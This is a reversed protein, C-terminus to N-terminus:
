RGVLEIGVVRGGDVAIEVEAGILDYQERPTCNDPAQTGVLGRSSAEISIGLRPVDGDLWVVAGKVSGKLKEM